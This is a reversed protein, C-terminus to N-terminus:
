KGYLHKCAIEAIAQFQDAKTHCNSLNTLIEKVIIMLESTTFLDNETSKNGFTRSHNQQTYFTSSNPTKSWPRATNNNISPFNANALEPANKFQKTTTTTKKHKRINELAKSYESRKPCHIFKASHNGDCNACKLSIDPIRPNNQSKDSILPCLKSSHREGCRVCKPKLHCNLAGHGFNMCNNCQMPGHQKHRYYEWRIRIQSLTRINRLDAIKTLQDKKFYVLYLTQMDRQPKRINLKKIDCPNIKNLILENSIDAIEMDHLGHIVFKNTQQEKLNHTYFENKKLILNNKVLKFHDNTSTYIKTGYKTLKIEHGKIGLFELDTKLQSIPINFVTLPPPKSVKVSNKANKRKIAENAIHFEVSEDTLSEYSNATEIGSMESDDALRTKSPRGRKKKPPHVFDSSKVSM